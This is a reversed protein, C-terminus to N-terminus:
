EDPFISKNGLDTRAAMQRKLWGLIELGLMVKTHTVVQPGSAPNEWCAILGKGNVGWPNCERAESKGCHYTLGYDKLLNESPKPSASLIQLESPVFGSVIFLREWNMVWARGAPGGKRGAQLRYGSYRCTSRAELTVRKWKNRAWPLDMEGGKVAVVLSFHMNRLLFYWCTYLKM